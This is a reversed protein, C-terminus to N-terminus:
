AHVPMGLNETKPGGCTWLLWFAGAAILIDGVSYAFNFPLRNPLVFRDALWEFRTQEAPLLVDKSTGVRKGIQLEEISLNIEARQLTEPSIPMFGGNAGIVLLNLILGLGLVWFAILTRNLWAFLLLLAQSIILAAAAIGDSAWEQGLPLFFLVWQPIFAVIVLWVEALDPIIFTRKGIIARIAGAIIGLLVAPLLVL